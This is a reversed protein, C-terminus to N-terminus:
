GARGEPEAASPQGPSYCSCNVHQPSLCHEEQYDKSPGSPRRYWWRERPRAPSLCENGPAPYGYHVEDEQDRGQLYKCHAAM